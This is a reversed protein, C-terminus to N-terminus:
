LKPLNGDKSLGPIIESHNKLHHHKHYNEVSKVIREHWVDAEHHSLKLRLQWGFHEDKFVQCRFYNDFDDRWYVYKKQEDSYRFTPRWLLEAEPIEQEWVKRRMDDYFVLHNILCWYPHSDVPPPPLLPREITIFKARKPIEEM